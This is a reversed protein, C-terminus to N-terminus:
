GAWPNHIMVFANSAVRVHDGAMMLVSAFSAAMGDVDVEIRAPHDDLAKLMAAGAFVNGGPSNIRLNIAPTNIANLQERFEKADVGERFFPDVGIEGYLLVETVEESLARITATKM